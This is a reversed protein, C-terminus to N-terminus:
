DSFCHRMEGDDDFKIQGALRPRTFILHDFTRAGIGVNFAPTYEMFAETLVLTDGANSLPTVGLYDPLDSNTLPTDTASAVSWCVELTRDEDSTCNATCKIASVRLRVPFRDHTLYGYIAEMGEFDSQDISHTERSIADSLAYVAKLNQNQVRYADFWVFAAAYLWCLVPLVLVTEVTVTGECARAFRRAATGTRRIAAQM